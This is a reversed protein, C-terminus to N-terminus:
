FVASALYHKILTMFVELELCCRQSSHFFSNILEETITQSCLSVNFLKDSIYKDVM